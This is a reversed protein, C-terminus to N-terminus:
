FLKIKNDFISVEIYQSHGYPMFTSECINLYACTDIRTHILVYM